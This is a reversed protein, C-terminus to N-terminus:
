LLALQVDVDMPSLRAIEETDAKAYWAEEPIGFQTEFRLVQGFALSESPKTFLDKRTLFAEWFRVNNSVAQNKEIRKLGSLYEERYGSPIEGDRTFHYTPELVLYWQNAFRDFRPQLAQHRYCVVREPDKQAHIAKVVSRDSDKVAGEWSERREVKDRGPAFYYIPASGKPAFRWIGRASLFSRLAQNLLRVFDRRRESDDSKAWEDANFREVTGADAIEPWPSQTLDHFSVIRKEKLFWEHGPRIKLDRFYGNVDAPSRRDTSAIYLHRPYHSVPLLNSLLTEDKPPPESYLGSDVPAALDHLAGASDQDFRNAKKNFLVKKAKRASLDKFYDKVSVWYAEGSDPRSVILIVPTNGQLWYALDRETCRYEFSDETEAAWDRATAKSQVQLILNTLEDTENRRIEIFGDVGGDSHALTPTFLWGMNTVIGDILLVGKHGTFSAPLIRKSKVQSSV